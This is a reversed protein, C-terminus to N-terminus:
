PQSYPSIYFIYLINNNNNDCLSVKQHQSALVQYQMYAFKHNTTCKLSHDLIIFQFHMFHQKTCSLHNFFVYLMRLLMLHGCSSFLLLQGPHLPANYIAKCIPTNSPSVDVYSQAVPYFVCIYSLSPLACVFLIEPQYYFILSAKLLAALMCYM